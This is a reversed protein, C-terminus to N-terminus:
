IEVFREWNIYGRQSRRSLWKRWVRRAHFVLRQISRINGNVGFYNM